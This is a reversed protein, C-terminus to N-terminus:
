PHLGETLRFVTRAIMLEEDTPIVRVTVPADATSILPANAANASLELRVGLFGLGDCISARVEPAHEGIGGSFVLADIGGLAAALSGVWKRAQYCFMEVAEAARADTAQRVLLDHMDASTESIGLLGSRRTVLDELQDPSLKENRALYVLVGPDIDGTRSGMVLGGAPTLGMTTDICKGGKVAAMSAGSGLHALVIRGRAAVAGALHEFEGLLYAYSLGHFGYRRVGADRYHRPIPLFKAPPPLDHLFATDFCVVQSVDPLRRSFAEILRIEAPLHSSALPLAARLDALLEPTVVEATTHAPGGHVIRHGVAVIQRLDGNADLWDFLGAVAGDFDSAPFPRREHGTARLSADPLGIREVAGALIRRLPSGSEFLAFKISSSGGNLTLVRSGPDDAPSLPNTPM